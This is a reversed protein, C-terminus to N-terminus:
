AVPAKPGPIVTNLEAEIDATSVVTRRASGVRASAVRGTAAWAYLTSPSLDYREAAEAVPVLDPPTPPMRLCHVIGPNRDVRM